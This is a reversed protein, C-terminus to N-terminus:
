LVWFYLFFVFVCVGGAAMKAYLSRMNLSRADKRYKQSMISLGSAKNDLDSLAAGRQLVDDINEMMIRQVDNLEGHINNLNRRARSDMFTKKTKQIYTDFEIFSYPRSVTHVQRSYQAQFEQAINELYSFALRKSYDRSCLTLYCVAGDILYHFLYPGTEISCRTPSQPTLKRFLMKAQNQYDLINRGTQEDEQISAALPLGDAVRAIMTMLVM